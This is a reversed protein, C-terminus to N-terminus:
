AHPSSHSLAYRHTGAYRACNKWRISCILTAGFITL